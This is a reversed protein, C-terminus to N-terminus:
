NDTLFNEWSQGSAPVDGLCTVKGPTRATSMQEEGFVARPLVRLTRVGRGCSSSSWQTRSACGRVIPATSERQAVGVGTPRTRTPQRHPGIVPSGAREDVPRTSHSQTAASCQGQVQEPGFIGSAVFNEGNSDQSDCGKSHLLSNSAFEFIEATPSSPPTGPCYDGRSHGYFREFVNTQMDTSHDSNFNTSTGAAAEGPVQVDHPQPAPQHVIGHAAFQASTLTASSRRDDELLSVSSCRDSSGARGNAVTEEPIPSALTMGIGENSKDSEM